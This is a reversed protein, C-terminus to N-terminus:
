CVRRTNSGTASVAGLAAGADGLVIEPEPVRIEGALTRKMARPAVATCELGLRGGCPEVLRDCENDEGDADM